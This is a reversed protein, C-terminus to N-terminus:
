FRAIFQAGRDLITTKPVGHLCLIHTIYLEAYKRVNYKTHVLIFHTTKILRDGVVWISDHKHAILPLGQIFDMSIDEWNWATVSLSQLLGVYKLQDAKVRRYTNCEIVYCTTECKMCPWWFQGKLDHYMKTSGCHISYKSMLTEGHVKSQMQGDKSGLIQGKSGYHENRTRTFVNWKHIV